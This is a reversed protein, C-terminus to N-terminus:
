PESTKTSRRQRTSQEGDAPRHSRRSPAPPRTPPCSEATEMSRAKHSSAGPAPRERFTENRSWIAWCIRALKNALAVAAKNHGRRQQTALAWLRLADARPKRKAAWLVSRAGHVLLARLYTDGQKTIKGLRRVQGTSHERPTLGLYNAFCRSSPFRHIDGVSAVMATATLLGIGPITQLNKVTPTQAALQRLQKECTAIRQELERIELCAEALPCRLPEPIDAEADEVLAWVGPVVKSAGVPITHGFERLVGRLTNTRTTRSRMWMSRLRHLATLTQQEPTKVPVPHIKDNRFAELMGKADNSDTKSRQVYPRVYQPPLLIPQHGLKAIERAWYHSSGCAELLVRAPQCDAFFALFKARSLRHRERVKGPQQSVAIEFVNKALDVAITTPHKVSEEKQQCM